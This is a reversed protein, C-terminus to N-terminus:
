YGENYLGQSIIAAVNALEDCLYRVDRANATNDIATEMLYQVVAYCSKIETLVDSMPRKVAPQHESVLFADSAEQVHAPPGAEWGGDLPNFPVADFSPFHGRSQTATIHEETAFHLRLDHDSLTM